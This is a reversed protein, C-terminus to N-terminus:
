STMFHRWTNSKSTKVTDYDIKLIKFQGFRAVEFSQPVFFILVVRYKIKQRLKSKALPPAEARLGGPNRGQM